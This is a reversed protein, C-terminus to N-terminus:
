QKSLKNVFFVFFLNIYVFLLEVAASNFHKCIKLVIRKSIWLKCDDDEDDVQNFLRKKNLVEDENSIYKKRFATLGKNHKDNYYFRLWQVKTKM